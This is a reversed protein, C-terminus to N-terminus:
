IVDFIVNGLVCCSPRVQKYLERKSDTIGGLFPISGCLIARESLM